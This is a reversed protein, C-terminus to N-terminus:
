KSEGTVVDMVWIDGELQTWPFYVYDRDADRAFLALGGSKDELDALIRKEGTEVVVACIKKLSHCGYFLETGDHSWVAKGEGSENLPAAEGGKALIRWHRRVGGRLSHFAVWKGDPSWSPLQAVVPDTTLRRPEGGEAPVIWIDTGERRSVFAIERGDPSWDPQYDSAPHTTIARAPGGDSPMMWVDLNGSRDSTFAIFAGDPSSTPSYDRGSRATLQVPEGGGAPLVWLDHLDRLGGQRAIILRGDPAVSPWSANADFTLQEADDWTAIRNELIPVRWVHAVNRGQSYAFHSGDPSFALRWIVLGATVPVPAGSPAGDSELEQLWLDRSGARNTVFFLRRGDSSWVPERANGTVEIPGEGSLPLLWLDAFQTIGGDGCAVFRGGPSWAPSDCRRDIRLERVNQSEISFIRLSVSEGSGHVMAIEKGNASWMPRRVSRIAELDPMSFLKRPAGGVAPLLFVGGGDRDSVFAIQSGDPSWSPFRDSWALDATRNVPAGGSLQTVWIDESGEEGTQFALLTGDPSVAPYDEFGSASTLKRPNQLRPVDGTRSSSQYNVFIAVALLMAVMGAGLWRNLRPKSTSSSVEGAGEDKSDTLETHVDRATQFRRKLDKELCRRLIRDLNNPIDPRNDRVSSPTEKIISALIAGATDGQFPRRGALMEYFVVGLSFIDSRADVTEGQAQEPSMYHLTGVIVGEATKAATPLASGADGGVFGSTPKALGYDLVKVRGDDGVMVNDPKLDRHTIGEQHAAAVADALPVAIDFFRNLAFGHRPILETLTKGKVLEMTIFHIGDTEEVSYVTVINPHNLAAIAKAERRFRSRREENEALEPPLVKLAVKRDM